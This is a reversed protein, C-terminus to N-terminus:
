EEERKGVVVFHVTKAIPRCEGIVVIDGEKVEICPPLHAHIKKRRREYRKYKPVYHLYEHLVSITRQMKTSVVRGELIRGRVSLSGHWPCLPDNCTKPPPNVGPIGVHRKVGIV